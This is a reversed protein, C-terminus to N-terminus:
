FITDTEKYTLNVTARPGKTLELGTLNGSELDERSITVRMTMDLTHGTETLRQGLTTDNTFGTVPSHWSFDIVYNDGDKYVDYARDCNKLDVYPRLKDGAENEMQYVRTMMSSWIDQQLFRSLNQCVVNKEKTSTTYAMMKEIATDETLKSVEQEVVEPSKGSLGLAMLNKSLAQNSEEYHLEKDTKPPGDHLRITDRNVDTMFQKTVVGTNDLPANRAEGFLRKLESVDHDTWTLEAQGTYDGSETLTLNTGKPVFPTAEKIFEVEGRLLELKDVTIKRSSLGLQKFLYDGSGPGLERDISAKITKVAEQHKKARGIFNLGHSNGEHTYLSDDKFRLHKGGDVDKLGGSENTRQEYIQSFTTSGTIGMSM